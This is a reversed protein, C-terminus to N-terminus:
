GGSGRRSLREKGTELRRAIQAPEAGFEEALEDVARVIRLVTAGGEFNGRETIGFHACLLRAEEEGVVAAVEDPRWVFYKGEEGESDADQTSYFGGDPHSMERLVYDLTHRAVAAHSEDGTLQYAEIYLPPLLANDYLMKEFHPVHWREDISYRHFGGALHDYIGGAPWRTLTFADCLSREDSEDDAARRRLLFQLALRPSSPRGASAATRGRRRALLWAAATSLLTADAEPAIPRACRARPPGGAALRSTM